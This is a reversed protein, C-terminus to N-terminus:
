LQSFIPQRVATVKITKIIIRKIAEVPLHFKLLMRASKPLCLRKRIGVRLIFRTPKKKLERAKEKWKDLM